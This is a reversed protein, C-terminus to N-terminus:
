EANSDIFVMYPKRNYVGIKGRFLIIILLNM